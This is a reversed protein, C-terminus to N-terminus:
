ELAAAPEVAATSLSVAPATLPATDPPPLTPPVTPMANPTVPTQKNPM